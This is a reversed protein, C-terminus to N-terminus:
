SFRGSMTGSDTHNGAGEISYYIRLKVAFFSEGRQGRLGSIGSVNVSQGPALEIPFSPDADTLNSSGLGIATVNLRIPSESRMYLTATGDPMVQFDTFSFTTTGTITDQVGAINAPNFIGVLYLLLLTVCLAIVIWGYTLLYEVASQAKSHRVLDM